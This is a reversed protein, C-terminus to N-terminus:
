SPTGVAVWVTGSVVRPDWTARLGVQWLRGCASGGGVPSPRSLFAYEATCGHNVLRTSARTGDGFTAVKSTYSLLESPPPGPNKPGCCLLAARTRPAAAVLRNKGTPQPKCQHSSPNGALILISHAHPSSSRQRILIGQALQVLLAGTDGAAAGPEVLPPNTPDEGLEHVCVLSPHVERPGAAVHWGKGDRPLSQANLPQPLTADNPFDPELPRM